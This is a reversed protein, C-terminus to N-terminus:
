DATGTPFIEELYAAVGDEENSLTVDDAIGRVAPHANAVAVAQGAWTLLPVDNPMDGFALVDSADVDYRSCLWALGAAKTVGAASIEVLGSTSSHTAEALGDLARSVVKVFVDPDQAAARALLKVAPVALLDDPLDVLRATPHGLDAQSPWNTDHRMARGDEVEVALVVDPVEARLRRAVEALLQPALPDARLVVDQLPDYVVAGNACVAPLPVRLQDYVAPLWRLPRGTVAVVPIGEASTRELAAITRESVSGDRRLLTGDLDTAVLRPLQGM